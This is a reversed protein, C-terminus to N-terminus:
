SEIELVAILRVCRVLAPIVPNHCPISNKTTL